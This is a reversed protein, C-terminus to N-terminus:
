VFLFFETIFYTKEDVVIYLWVINLKEDDETRREVFIM